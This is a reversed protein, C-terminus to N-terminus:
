RWTKRRKLFQLFRAVEDSDRAVLGGPGSLEDAFQVEGGVDDGCGVVQPGLLRGEVEEVLEEGLEVQSGLGNEVDAVPQVVVDTGGLFGPEPRREDTATGPGVGEGECGFLDAGIQHEGRQRLEQM